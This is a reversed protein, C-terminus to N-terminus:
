VTGYSCLFCRLVNRSILGSLSWVSRYETRRGSAAHVQSHSSTYQYWCLSHKTFSMLTHRLELVILLIESYNYSNSIFHVSKMIIKINSTQFLIPLLMM